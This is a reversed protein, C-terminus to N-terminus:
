LQGCDAIRNSCLNKWISITNKLQKWSMISWEVISGFVVHKKDLWSTKVTSQCYLYIFPKWKHSTRMLKPDDAIRFFNRIRHARTPLEWKPIQRWNRQHLWRGPMHFGQQCSPILIREEWHAFELTRLQRQFLMVVFSWLLVDMPATLTNNQNM